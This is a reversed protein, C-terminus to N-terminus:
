IHPPTHDQLYVLPYCFNSTSPLSLHEDGCRGRGQAGEDGYDIVLVAPRVAEVDM